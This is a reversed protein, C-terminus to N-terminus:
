ATQADLPIATARLRTLVEQMADLDEDSFLEEPGRPAISSFPSDYLAGVDVIGNKTIVKILLKIFDLQNASLIRGEQFKDFAAIAAEEDLGAIARVFLGLQGAHESKAQEVDEATGFGEAVFINELSAIDATTIQGNRRLKQVAIQDPHEALYTRVKAEFRSKGRISTPISLAAGPRSSTPSWRACAAACLRRADAPHCGGVLRGLVCGRLFDHYKSVAPINQLDPSLMNTM